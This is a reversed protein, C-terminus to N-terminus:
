PGNKKMLKHPDNIPMNVPLKPFYMGWIKDKMTFAYRAILQIESDLCLM